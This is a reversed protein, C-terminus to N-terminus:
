EKSLAEVAALLTTKMLIAGILTRDRIKGNDSARMVYPNQGENLLARADYAIILAADDAGMNFEPDRAFALDASRSAIAAGNLNSLTTFAAIQAYGRVTPSAKGETAQNMFFAMVYSIYGLVYPSEWFGHPIGLGAAHLTGLLPRVSDIAAAEARKRISHSSFGSLFGLM